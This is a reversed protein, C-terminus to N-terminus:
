KMRYVYEFGIGGPVSRKERDILGAAALRDLLATDWVNLKNRGLKDAIFSRTVWGGAAQIIGLLKQGHETLEETMHM